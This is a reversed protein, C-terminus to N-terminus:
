QLDIWLLICSTTEKPSLAYNEVLDLIFALHHGLSGKAFELNFSSPSHYRQPASEQSGSRLEPDLAPITDERSSHVSAAAGHDTSLM